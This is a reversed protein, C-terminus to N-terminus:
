VFCSNKGYISKYREATLAFTTSVRAMVAATSVGSLQTFALDKKRWMFLAQEICAQKVESPVAAFGWRASVTVISSVAIASSGPMGPNAPPQGFILYGDQEYYDDGDITIATDDVDITDISEAIYPDLQVYETGKGRFARESPDEAAPLFFGDPVECERDFLRSVASALAEWADTGSADSEEVSAKLEAATVYQDSAMCILCGAM